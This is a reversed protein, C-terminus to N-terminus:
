GTVMAAIAYHNTHQVTLQLNSTWIGALASMNQFKQEVQAEALRTRHRHSLWIVLSLVLWGGNYALALFVLTPLYKMGMVAEWASKIRHYRMKIM